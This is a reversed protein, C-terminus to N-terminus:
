AMQHKFEEIVPVNQPDSGYAQATYFATWDALVLSSFIKEFVTTGTLPIDEVPFGRKQILSRFVDMRKSIRPDDADDRLLVIYFRSPLHERATGMDFGTMENHNLEPFVNSFAPIKGTENCKIKWNYAIPGNRLSAYILPVHGEMRAALAEGEKRYIEPALTNGLSHLEALADANGMLALTAKISYGLASRPQIGTSPLVVHPVRRKQARTLLAGGTAIVAIHLGRAYAVDFADLTEETNGSYSSLIILCEKLFAESYDPLGYDRHMFIDTKSSHLKILGPALNSGGMGCVVFRKTHYLADGHEISPEWLLQTHFQKIAEEV